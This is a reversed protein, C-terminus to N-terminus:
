APKISLTTELCPPQCHWEQQEHESGRYHSVGSCVSFSVKAKKKTFIFIRKPNRENLLPHMYLDKTFAFHYLTFKQFAPCLQISHIIKDHM